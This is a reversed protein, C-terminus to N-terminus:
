TEDKLKEEYNIEMKTNIRIYEPQNPNITWAVDEYALIAEINSYSIRRKNENTLNNVICVAPHLM